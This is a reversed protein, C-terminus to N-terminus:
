GCVLLWLSSSCRGTFVDGGRDPSNIRGALGESIINPDHLPDARVM